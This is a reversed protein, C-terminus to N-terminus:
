THKKGWKGDSVTEGEQDERQSSEDGREETEMQMREKKQKM